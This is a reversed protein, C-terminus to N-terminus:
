ETPALTPAATPPDTLLKEACEIKVCNKIKKDNKAFCGARCRMDAVKDLSDDRACSLVCRSTKDVVCQTTCETKEPQCEAKCFNSKFKCNAM